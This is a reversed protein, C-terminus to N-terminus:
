NFVLDLLEDQFDNNYLLSLDTDIFTGLNTATVIIVDHDPFYFMDSGAGMADGDHGIKWGYPTNRRQLGFGYMNGGWTSERWNTMEEFSDHSVLRGHVLADIFLYFDYATAMIGDSGTFIQTLYNNVDSVNEIKGDALRDFYCNVLGPPTPFGEENKYYTNQLGLSEFIRTSYYKSHSEGYAVDLCKDLLEYGTSSYKLETGAEFAPKDGFVYEILKDSTISFPDNLVDAIFEPQYDGNPIGSTQSVLHRITATNGNPIKDIIDAPLYKSIKDDLQIYGEEVMLM